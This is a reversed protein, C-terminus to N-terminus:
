LQRMGRRVASERAAEQSSLYEGDWLVWRPIDEQWVLVHSSYEGPWKAVVLAAAHKGEHGPSWDLVEVIWADGVSPPVAARFAQEDTRLRLKTATDM